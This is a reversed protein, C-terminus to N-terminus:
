DITESSHFSEGIEETKIKYSDTYELKSDSKDTNSENETQSIYFDEYKYWKNDKEKIQELNM